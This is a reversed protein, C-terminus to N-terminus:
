AAGRPRPAAHEREWLAMVRRVAESPLLGTARAETMQRRGECLSAVYSGTEWRDGDSGVSVVARGLGLTLGRAALWRDVEGFTMEKVKCRALVAVGM